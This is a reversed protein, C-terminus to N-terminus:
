ELYGLDRLRAGVEEAAASDYSTVAGVEQIDDSGFEPPRDDLVDPEITEELLRGEFETPIPEGLLYMITPAIDQINASLV